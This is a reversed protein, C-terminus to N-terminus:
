KQAQKVMVCFARGANASVPKIISRSFVRFRNVTIETIKGRSQM